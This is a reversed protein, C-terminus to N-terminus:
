SHHEYTAAAANTSDGERAQKLRKVGELVQTFASSAPHATTGPGTEAISYRRGFGEWMQTFAPGAPHAAVELGTM